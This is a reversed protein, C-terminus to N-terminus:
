TNGCIDKVTIRSIFKRLEVCLESGIDVWNDYMCLLWVKLIDIEQILM